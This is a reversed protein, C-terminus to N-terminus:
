SADAKVGDWPAGPRFVTERGAAIDGTTSQLALRERDRRKFEETIADIAERTAGIEALAMRGVHLASGYLERVVLQEGTAHLAMAHSRDYARVIIPLNPFARRVPGLREPDWAKGGSAIVLVGASEAGAARLVDPRFGDGYYVRWGFGASREIQEQKADILVVEVGRAHLMQTVIQGFRGYGVVIV